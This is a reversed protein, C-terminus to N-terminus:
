ELSIPCQKEEIDSNYTMYKSDKLVEDPSINSNIYSELQPMQPMQSPSDENILQSYFYTYPDTAPLNTM